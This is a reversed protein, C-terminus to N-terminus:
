EGRLFRMYYEANIETPCYCPLGIVEEYFQKVKPDVIRIMVKKVQYLFKAIQGIM